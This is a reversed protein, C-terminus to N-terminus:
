NSQNISKIKYISFPVCLLNCVAMNLLMRYSSIDFIKSISFGLVTFILLFCTIIMGSLIGKQSFKTLLNIIILIVLTILFGILIYTLYEDFASILDLEEIEIKKCWNLLHKIFMPRVIIVCFMAVFTQIGCISCIIKKNKIKSSLIISVVLLSLFGLIMYMVFKPVM